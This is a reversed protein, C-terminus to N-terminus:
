KKSKNIICQAARVNLQKQENGTIPTQNNNDTRLTEADNVQTKSANETVFADLSRKAVTTDQYAPYTVPSVDYLRKFKIIQRLPTEGKLETWREEDIGFAFSSQSINGLRINEELDKAYSLNPTEYRYKLGIEDITLKLTGEGKNSRALVYNPDHNILCRIDDNLVDDASGPLIEERFFSGITTTTNFKFAYGEIISPKDDGEARTEITVPASFVRREAQPLNAIYDKEKSM